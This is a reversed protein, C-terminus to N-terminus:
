QLTNYSAYNLVWRNSGAGMNGFGTNWYAIYMPDTTSTTTQMGPAKTRHVSVVSSIEIDNDEEVKNLDVCRSGSVQVLGTQNYYRNIEQLSIKIIQAYDDDTLESELVNGTLQFKIKDVYYELNL